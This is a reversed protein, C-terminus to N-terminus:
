LDTMIFHHPEVYRFSHHPYPKGEIFYLLM